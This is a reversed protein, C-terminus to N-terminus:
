VRRSGPRTWSPSSTAPASSRPPTTSTSSSAAGRRSASSRPSCAACARWWSTTRSSASSTRRSRDGRHAPRDLERHRLRRHGVSDPDVGGVFRVHDIPLGNERDTLAALGRWTDRALQELFAEDAAPLTVRDVNLRSPWGALRAHIRLKAAERGGLSEEWKRKKPALDLDAVMALQLAGAEAPPAAVDLGAGGMALAPPGSPEWCRVSRSANDQAAAALPACCLGFAAIAGALAARM